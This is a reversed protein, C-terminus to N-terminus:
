WRGWAVAKFGYRLSINLADHLSVERWGRKVPTSRKVPKVVPAFRLTTTLRKM